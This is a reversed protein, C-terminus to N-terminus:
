NLTKAADRSPLGVRKQNLSHIDTKDEKKGESVALGFEGNDYPYLYHGLM